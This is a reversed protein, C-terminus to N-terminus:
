TGNERMFVRGFGRSKSVHQNRVDRPFTHGEVALAGNEVRHLGNKKKNTNGNEVRNKRNQNETLFHESRKKVQFM